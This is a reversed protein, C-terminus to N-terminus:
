VELGQHVGRGSEVHTDFRLLEPRRELRYIILHPVSDRTLMELPTIRGIPVDNPRLSLMQPSSKRAGQIRPKMRNKAPGISMESSADNVSRTSTRGPATRKMPSSFQVRSRLSGSTILDSRTVPFKRSIETGMVM